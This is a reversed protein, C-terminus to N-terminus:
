SPKPVPFRVVAGVGHAALDTEAMLYRVSGGDARSTEALADVLDPVPRMKADCVPCTEAVDALWGCAPCRVGPILEDVDVLLSAVARQNVADLVRTLGLVARGGSGAADLLAAAEELDVRREYDNVVERCRVRIEAPTATGPDVTFTGAVIRGLDPPLEELVGSVNAPQGGILLMDYGGERHLTGLRSAVTRFLRRAVTEAHARVRQEDFGGFGGFNDKRVEEEGIQEWAELEGMHFRYIWANRRDVVVACFPRFHDLVAELPGLYPSTDIVARDRVPAPLRVYEEIGGGAFFAAGRGLDGRIREALSVVAAAAERLQRADAAAQAQLPQLLAKIRTPIARVQEPDPSLGLYVSVVRGEASTTRLRDVTSRDLV